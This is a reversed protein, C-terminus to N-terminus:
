LGALSQLIQHMREVDSADRHLWWVLVRVAEDRGIKLFRDAEPKLYSM